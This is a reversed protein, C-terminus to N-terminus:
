SEYDDFVSCLVGFITPCIALGLIAEFIDKVHTLLYVTYVFLVVSSCAIAILVFIGDFCKDGSFTEYVKDKEPLCVRLAFVSIVPAGLIELIDDLTHADNQFYAGAFIKMLFILAAVGAIAAPFTMLNDIRWNENKYRTEADQKAVDEAPPTLVRYDADEYGDDGGYYDDNDAM